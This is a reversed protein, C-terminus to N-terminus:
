LVSYVETKMKKGLGFFKKGLMSLATYVGLGEVLLWHHYSSVHNCLVQSLSLSVSVKLEITKLTTNM